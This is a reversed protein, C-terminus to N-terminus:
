AAPALVADVTEAALVRDLFRELEAADAAAIREEHRPALEGFRQALQRRLTRRLAEAGGEAMWTQALTPVVDEEEIEAQLLIDRFRLATLDPAVAVFYAFLQQRLKEADRQKALARLHTMFGALTELMLGRRTDRLAVLTMVLGPDLEGHQLSADSRRHLDEHVLDFDPVFARLEPRSDLIPGFLDAFSTPGRWGRDAHSVVVPIIPRLPARRDRTRTRHWIRLMYGLMQPFVWRDVRSKHEVLVYVLAPGDRWTLHLLVDSRQEAGDPAVFSNSDVRLSRLDIGALIEPPLIIRLLDAARAPSEMAAKFLDDHPNKTTVGYEPAFALQEPPRENPFALV